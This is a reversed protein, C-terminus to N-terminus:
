IRRLSRKALLQKILWYITRIFALLILTVGVLAILNGVGRALFEQDSANSQFYHLNGNPDKMATVEYKPYRRLIWAGAQVLVFGGVATFVLGMGDPLKKM